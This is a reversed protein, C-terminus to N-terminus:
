APRHSAVFAKLVAALREPYQLHLQHAGPLLEMQGRPLM